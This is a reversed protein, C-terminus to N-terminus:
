DGVVVRAIVGTISNLGRYTEAVGIREVILGYLETGGLSAAAAWTYASATPILFQNVVATGTYTDASMFFRANKKLRYATVPTGSPYTISTPDSINPRNGLTDQYFNYGVVMALYNATIASIQTATYIDNEGTILSTAQVLYGDDLTDSAAQVSIVNETDFYKDYPIVLAM